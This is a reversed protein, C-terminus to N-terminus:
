DVQFVRITDRIAGVFELVVLKSPIMDVKNHIMNKILTLLM